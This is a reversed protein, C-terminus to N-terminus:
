KHTRCRASEPHNILSDVLYAQRKGAVIAGVNQGFELVRGHEKESESTLVRRNLGRYGCVM